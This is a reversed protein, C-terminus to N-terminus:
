AAFYRDGERRVHRQRVGVRLVSGLIPTRLKSLETPVVEPPLGYDVVSTSLASLTPYQFSALVDSSARKWVSWRQTTGCQFLGQDQWPM